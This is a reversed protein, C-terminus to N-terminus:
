TSSRVIEGKIIKKCIFIIGILFKEFLLSSIFFFVKPFTWNFIKLVHDMIMLTQYM